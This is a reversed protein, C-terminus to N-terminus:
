ILRCLHVFYVIQAQIESYIGCLTNNKKKKEALFYEFKRKLGHFCINHTSM